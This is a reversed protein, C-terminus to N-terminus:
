NRISKSFAAIVTLISSRVPGTFVFEPDEVSAFGVQASGLESLIGVLLSGSRSLCYLKHVIVIDCDKRQVNELLLQLQPRKRKRGSLGIDVFERVVDWGQTQAFNRMELLQVHISLRGEDGGSATRAYLVARNGQLNRNNEYM